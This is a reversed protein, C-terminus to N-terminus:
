TTLIKRHYTVLDNLSAIASGGHICNVVAVSMALMNSIHLTLSCHSIDQLGMFGM